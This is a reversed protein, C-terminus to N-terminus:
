EELRVLSISVDVAWGDPGPHHGKYGVPVEQGDSTEWYNIESDEMGVYAQVNIVEGYDSSGEYTKFHKYFIFRIGREKDEFAEAGFDTEYYELASIPFFDKQDKTYESLDIGDESVSIIAKNNQSSFIYGNYLGENENHLLGSGQEPYVLYNKVWEGMWPELHTLVDDEGEVAVSEAPPIDENGEKSGGFGKVVFTVAFLAVVAIVAIGIMKYKAADSGSSTQAGGAKVVPAGCKGCFQDNEKLETGCKSCYVAM